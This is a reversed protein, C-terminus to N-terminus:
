IRKKANDKGFDPIRKEPDHELRGAIMRRYAANRPAFQLLAAIATGFRFVDGDLRPM